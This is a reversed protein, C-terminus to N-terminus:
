TRLRSSIKRQMSDSLKRELKLFLFACALAFIIGMVFHMLWGVWLRVGLMAALMSSASIYPLGLLPTLLKSITMLGADVIGGKLAQKLIPKM